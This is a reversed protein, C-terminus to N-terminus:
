RKRAAAEAIRRAHQDLWRPIEAAPMPRAFHYGQAHRCGLMRLVEAEEEEEVGEVVIDISLAHGIGVLAAILAQNERSKAIGTVFSRDIKLRDIHLSALYALSSHGMGFDDVALRFGAAELRALEAGAAQTDLMAEETIEIEMLAPSIEHERAIDTLLRSLTDGSFERPSVNVAVAAEPLGLRPLTRLLEAARTAVYGTLATSIHLAHAARVIDPPSVAGLEPHAWRLLAEFGTVRGTALEVQPQFVVQLQRHEIAEALTAEILRQREIRAKLEPNFLGLRRRGGEKAAYLAIDASAFLADATEGHQPYLALGASAGVTVPRDAILIPDGALLVIGEGIERGRAGAKEGEVIVAFEDGGLRVVTDTPGTLGALRSAIETLVADGAGHGMTDNIAKFRDLDIAILALTDAPPDVALLDRLRQNFLARNGLGTLPDRNALSALQHYSQRIEANADSLSAALAVAKLRDIQSRIFSAESLQSARLMMVALLLADAAIVFAETTGSFLLSVFAAALPPGAFLLATRAYATSQMLAGACIGGIIFILYPNLGNAGHASGLFPALCWALGGGLAGLSLVGLARRPREVACNLRRVIRVGIYRAINIALVAALWLFIGIDPGDLWLVAATTAALFSNAALSLVIGDLVSLAQASLIQRRTPEDAPMLRTADTM